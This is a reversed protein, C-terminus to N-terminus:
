RAVHSTTRDSDRLRQLLLAGGVFLVASALPNNAAASGGSDFAALGRLLAGVGAIYLVITVIRDM